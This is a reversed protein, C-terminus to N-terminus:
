NCSLLDAAGGLTQVLLRHGGWINASVVRSVLFYCISMHTCVCVYVCAHRNYRQKDKVLAIGLGRRDLNLIKRVSSDRSSARAAGVRSRSKCSVHTHVQREVHDVHHMDNHKCRMVYMMIRTYIRTARHTWMVHLTTAIVHGLVAVCVDWVGPSQEVLGVAGVLVAVNLPFCACGGAAM